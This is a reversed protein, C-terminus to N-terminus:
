QSDFMDLSREVHIFTLSSPIPGISIQYALVRSHSSSQSSLSIFLQILNSAGDEVTIPISVMSFGEELRAMAGMDRGPESVNSVMLPENSVFAKLATRTEGEAGFLTNEDVLFVGEPLSERPWRAIRVVDDTLQEGATVSADAVYVNVLPIARRARENAEILAAEYQGIYGQVFRVAFFALGAGVLIVSIIIIRM